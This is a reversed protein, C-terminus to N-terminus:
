WAVRKHLQPITTTRGSLIWMNSRASICSRCQRSVGWLLEPNHSKLRALPWCRRAKGVEFTEPFIMIKSAKLRWTRHQMEAWSLGMWCMFNLGAPVKSELAEWRPLYCDSNKLTFFNFNLYSFLDGSFFRDGRRVVSFTCGGNIPAWNENQDKKERNPCM